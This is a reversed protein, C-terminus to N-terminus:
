RERVIRVYERRMAEDLARRIWVSLDVGNRLACLQYRSREALTCRFHIRAEKTDGRM